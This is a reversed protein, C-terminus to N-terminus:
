TSPSLPKRMRQTTVAYGSRTYLRIAAVNDGLVNLELGSRRHDRAVREVESLLARGYGRRRHPEFIEIEYLFACDPVGLPHVLGLWALGVPGSGRRVATFFLMDPTAFGGPLLEDNSARAQQMATAMPWRGAELQDRAYTEIAAERWRDYETETMPRIELAAVRLNQCARPM